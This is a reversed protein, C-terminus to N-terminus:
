KEEGEAPGYIKRRLKNVADPQNALKEAPKGGAVFESVTINDIAEIEARNISLLSMADQHEGKKPVIAYVDRDYGLSFKQTGETGLGINLGLSAEQVYVLHNSTCSVFFIFLGPLLCVFFCTKFVNSRM